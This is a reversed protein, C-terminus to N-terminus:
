DLLEDVESIDIGDEVLLAIVDPRNAPHAGLLGVREEQTRHLARSHDPDTPEDQPGFRVDDGNARQLVREGQLGQEESILHPARSLQGGTERVKRDRVTLDLGSPLEDGRHRRLPNRLLMSTYRSSSRSSRRLLGAAAGACDVSAAPSVGTPSRM